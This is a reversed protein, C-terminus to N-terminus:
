SWTARRTAKRAMFQLIRIGLQVLEEQTKKWEEMEAKFRDRDEKAKAKFAEKEKLLCCKGNNQARTLMKVLISQKISSIPHRPLLLNQDSCLFAFDLVPLCLCLSSDCFRFSRFSVLIQFLSILHPSLCTLSPPFFSSLDFSLFLFSVLSLCVFSLSFFLISFCESHSHLLSLSFIRRVSCVKKKTVNEEVAGSKRKSGVGAHLAEKRDQSDREKAEEERRRHKALQEEEKHKLRFQVLESLCLGCCMCVVVVVSFLRFSPIVFSITPSVYCFSASHICLDTSLMCRGDELGGLEDGQEERRKRKEEEQAIKRAERKKKKDDAKM